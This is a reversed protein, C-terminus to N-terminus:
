VNKTLLNGPIKVTLIKPGQSKGFNVSSLKIKEVYRDKFIDAVSKLPTNKELIIFNNQLYPKLYMALNYIFSGGTMDVIKDKNSYFLIKYKALKTTPIDDIFMVIVIKNSGTLFDILSFQDLTSNIKIYLSDDLLNSGSVMPLFDNIRIQYFKKDFLRVPYVYYNRGIELINLDIDIDTYINEINNKDSWPKKNLAIKSLFLKKKSIIKTDITDVM